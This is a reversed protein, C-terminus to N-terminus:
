PDWPCIHDTFWFHSLPLPLPSLSCAWASLRVCRGVLLVRCFTYKVESAPLVSLPSGSSVPLLNRKGLPLPNLYSPSKLPGLKRKPQTNLKRNHDFPSIMAAPACAAPRMSRTENVPLLSSYLHNTWKNRNGWDQVGTWPIIRSVNLSLSRKEALGKQFCSM